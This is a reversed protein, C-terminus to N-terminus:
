RDSKIIWDAMIERKEFLDNDIVGGTKVRDGVDIQFYGSDDLPNYGLAATDVQIKRAGTDLTLERGNIAAVKGTVEVQKVLVPYTVTWSNFDEEDAANAYFYTGLNEVFVSSAEITKKEFLDNDVIGNVVVEDNALLGYGDPYFDFDDMEVTIVGSGYDLRFSSPSASAITGSVTIWTDDSAKKPDQAFADATLLCPALVAGLLMIKSTSSKM